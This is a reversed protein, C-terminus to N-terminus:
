EEQFPYNAMGCLYLYLLCFSIDSAFYLWSSFPPQVLTRAVMVVIM